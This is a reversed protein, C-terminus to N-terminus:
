DAAAKLISALEDVIAALMAHDLSAPDELEDERDRTTLEKAIERMVARIAESNWVARAGACQILYNARGTERLRAELFAVRDEASTPGPSPPLAVKDPQGLASAFPIAIADELKEAIAALDPDEPLNRILDRIGTRLRMNNWEVKAAGGRLLTHNRLCAALEAELRALRAEPKDM